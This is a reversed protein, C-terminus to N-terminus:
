SGLSSPHNLILLRWGCLPPALQAWRKGKAFSMIRENPSKAIVALNVRQTVHPAEGELADLM